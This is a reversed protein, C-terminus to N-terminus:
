DHSAEWLLSYECIIIVSLYLYNPPCLFLSFLLYFIYSKMDIVFKQKTSTKMWMRIVVCLILIKTSQSLFNNIYSIGFNRSSISLIDTPLLINTTVALHRLGTEDTWDCVHVRSTQKRKTFDVWALQFCTRRIGIMALWWEIHSLPM